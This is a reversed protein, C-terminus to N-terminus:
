CSRVMSVIFGECRDLSRDRIRRKYRQQLWRVAPHITWYRNRVWRARRYHRVAASADGYGEISIIKLQGAARILERLSTQTFHRYHQPNSRPVNISPTTLVFRGGVQILQIINRLALVSKKPPIHELVEVFICADFANRFEQMLVPDTIDGCYFQANPVLRRAHEIGNDSWDVGVVELGGEALKACNWGTGCGVEIATRAGAEKVLEVVRAVYMDHMITWITDERHLWTTPLLYTRDTSVCKGNDTKM